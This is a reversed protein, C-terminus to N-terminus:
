TICKRATCDHDIVQLEDKKIAPFHFKKQMPM